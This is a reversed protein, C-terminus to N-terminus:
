EEDGAVLDADLWERDERTLKPNRWAKPNDWDSRPHAVPTVVLAGERVDLSVAEPSGLEELLKKPIRIGRSNGVPVIPVTIMTVNYDCRYLRIVDRQPIDDTSYSNM